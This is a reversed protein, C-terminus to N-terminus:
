GSVQQSPAAQQNEPQQSNTASGADSQSVTGAQSGPNAQSNVGSQPNESTRSTVGPQSATSESQSSNDQARPKTFFDTVSPLIEVVTHKVHDIDETPVISNNINQLYWNKIILYANGGFVRLFVATALIISCVTIQITTLLRTSLTKAKKNRRYQQGDYDKEYNREYDRQDDKEHNRYNRNDNRSYVDEYHDEVYGDDDDEYDDEYDKDYRNDEYRDDM